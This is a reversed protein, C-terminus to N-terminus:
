SFPIFYPDDKKMEYFTRIRYGLNPYHTMTYFRLDRYFSKMSNPSVNQRKSIDVLINKLRGPLNPIEFIDMEDETLSLDNEIMVDLYEIWTKEDTESTAIINYLKGQKKQAEVKYNKLYSNNPAPELLSCSEYKVIPLEDSVELSGTTPFQKLYKKEYINQEDSIDRPKKYLDNQSFVRDGLNISFSIVLWYFDFYRTKAPIHLYDIKPSLIKGDYVVQSRAFDIITPIYRVNFSEEGIKITSFQFLPRCVVNFFHLDQHIFGIRKNALKCSAYVMKILEWAEAPEIDKDKIMAALTKGPIYQYLVYNLNFEGKYRCPRNEFDICGFTAIMGAFCPCEDRLQNLQLGVFFEHISKDSAKFYEELKLLYKVGHLEIEYIRGQSVSLQDAIKKQKQMFDKDLAPLEETWNEYSFTKAVIDLTEANAWPDNLLTLDL